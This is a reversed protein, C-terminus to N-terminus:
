AVLHPQHASGDLNYPHSPESVPSLSNCQGYARGNQIRILICWPLLFGWQTWDLVVPLPPRTKSSIPQNTFAEHCFLSTGPLEKSVFNSPFLYWMRTERTGRSLISSKLLLYCNQAGGKKPVRKGKIKGQMYRGPCQNADDSAFCAEVIRSLRSHQKRESAQERVLLTGKSSPVWKIVM